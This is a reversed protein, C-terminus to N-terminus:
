TIKTKATYAPANARQLNGIINGFEESFKGKLLIIKNLM